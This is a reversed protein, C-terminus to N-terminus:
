RYLSKIKEWNTALGSSTAETGDTDTFDDGLRVTNDFNAALCESGFTTAARILHPSQAVFELVPTGTVRIALTGVRHKGPRLAMTGGKAVWVDEGQPCASGDGCWVLGYPFGVNDMWAGYEVTGPGSAHLTFEYSIMTIPSDANTCVAASGDRNMDTVYYVDVSTVSPDLRDPPLSGDAHSNMGDGNVDLFTYQAHAPPVAALALAVAILISGKM